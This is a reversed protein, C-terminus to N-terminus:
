IIFRLDHPSPDSGFAPRCALIYDVGYTDDVIDQQEAQLKPPGYIPDWSDRVKDYRHWSGLLKYGKPMTYTDIEIWTNQPFKKHKNTIETVKNDRSMGMPARKFQGRELGTWTMLHELNEGAGTSYIITGFRASSGEVDAM